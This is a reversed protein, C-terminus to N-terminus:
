WKLFLYWVNILVQKGTVIFFAICEISVILKCGSEVMGPIGKVKVTNEEADFILQECENLKPLEGGGTKKARKRSVTFICPRTIITNQCKWLNGNHSFYTKRLKCLNSSVM